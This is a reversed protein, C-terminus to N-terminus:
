KKAALLRNIIDDYSEGHKGLRSLKERTTVDIQITTRNM